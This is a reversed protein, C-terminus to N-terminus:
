TSKGSTVSEDDGDFSVKQRSFFNVKPFNKDRSSKKKKRDSGCLVFTPSCFLLQFPCFSNKGTEETSPTQEFSLDPIEALNSM